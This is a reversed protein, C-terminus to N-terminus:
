TTADSKSGRSGGAAGRPVTGVGPVIGGASMSVPVMARKTRENKTRSRAPTGIAKAIPREVAPVSIITTLGSGANVVIECRMAVPRSLKASTAIGNKMRDPSNMFRPPM